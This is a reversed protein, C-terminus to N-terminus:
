IGDPFKTISNGNNNIAWMHTGDFVLFIPDNLGATFTRYRGDSWTNYFASLPYTDVESGATVWLQSGDIAVAQAFGPELYFKGVILNTLAVETVRQAGTSDAIWMNQGDFAISDPGGFQFAIGSLNRNFSGDSANILTVSNTLYNAVWLRSGDFAIALPGALAYGTSLTRVWSGDSANIETVSSAAPNVIWIHSGDYAMQSPNDFGYSGGSLTRIWSGDKANIETVSSGTPVTNSIWIHTGDFTLYEPHNFGYSGGSLIRVPSGDTPNIETVSNGSTNAVWLHTGDFVAGTPSNFGYASGTFTDPSNWDLQVAQQPDALAPAQGSTWTLTSYGSPCAAAKATDLVKLAYSSSATAKYCGTISGSADPISAWSVGTAVVAGFLLGVIVGQSRFRWRISGSAADHHKRTWGVNTM